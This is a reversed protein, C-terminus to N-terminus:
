RNTKTNCRFCFINISIRQFNFMSLCNVVTVNWDHESRLFRSAIFQFTQFKCNRYSKTQYTLNRWFVQVFESHLNVSHFTAIRTKDRFLTRALRFILFVWKKAPRSEIFERFILISFHRINLHNNRGVCYPIM